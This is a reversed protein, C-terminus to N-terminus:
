AREIVIETGVAGSAAPGLSVVKWANLAAVVQAAAATLSGPVDGPQITAKCVKARSPLATGLATVSGCVVYDGAAIVGTGPTAQLGDALVYMMDKKNIGGISWGTSSAPEVSTVAAEIADGAACLVYRDTGAFKVLKWKDNLTFRGALDASAGLRVVQSDTSPGAPQIYHAKSM